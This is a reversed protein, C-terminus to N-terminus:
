IVLSSGTVRILFYVQQIVVKSSLLVLGYLILCHARSHSPGSLGAAQNKFPPQIFCAVCYFTGAYDCSPKDGLLQNCLPSRLMLSWVWTVHRETGVPNLYWSTFYQTNAHPM